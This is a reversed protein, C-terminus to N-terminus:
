EVDDFLKAFAKVTKAQTERDEVPDGRTVLPPVRYRAKGPGGELLNVSRKEWEELRFLADAEYVGNELDMTNIFHTSDDMFQEIEGLKSYYDTTVQEMALDYLERQEGEALIRRSATMAQHSAEIMKRKEAEEEVTDKIDAVMLSSAEQVKEMVALHTKMRNLLGQYTINSKEARGARRMQLAMEARMGRQEGLAKARAAMNMSQEQKQTTAQIKAELKRIQGRLAGIAESIAGLNGELQVIFTRMIAIPDIEVFRRTVWRMASKYAYWALRHVDKNVLLWGVLATGGALFSTYLVNELVRTLLPLAVDIARVAGYGLVAIGAWTFWNEPRQWVNKKDKVLDSM